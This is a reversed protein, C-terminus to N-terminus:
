NTLSSYLSIKSIREKRRFRNGFSHRRLTFSDFKFKGLFSNNLELVSKNLNQNSILDEDPSAEIKLEKEKKESEEKEIKKESLLSKLDDEISRFFYCIFLISYSGGILFVIFCCHKFDYHSSFFGGIIPGSFDGISVTLNNVASSIDNATLEDINKDIKRINKSLAVLGPIFVPASGAGIFLFGIIISILSRPIPPCPYLFLPSISSFILGCSFTFYIGFKASINDLFQLISVYSIIPIIFFLSATSISLNYNNTLHNTLCPYYFTVIIMCIIFAILILYIEPHLLFRAFRPDEESEEENNLKSSDVNKTLYVSIYLFLGLIIFPLSYGGFRYFFSAFLPGSSTGLSWGVELNGLSIQTEDEDSLSITLSYVLTGIIAACSGHLIRLTFIIVILLSYSSILPLFGYILTCTAEFFTAFYLLKIRSFKKSLTPIFPTLITSAISYTSIIWGLVDEGINDKKGLSPFLPSVLSYGMGSFMNILFFLTTNKM